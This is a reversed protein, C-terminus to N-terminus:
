FDVFCWRRSGWCFSFFLCLINCCGTGCWYWNFCILGDLLIMCFLNILRCIAICIFLVLFLRNWARRNNGIIFLNLSEFILFCLLVWFIFDRGRRLRNFIKLFNILLGLSLLWRRGRRFFIYRFRIFFAIFFSFSYLGNGLIIGQILRRDNSLFLLCFFGRRQRNLVGLLIFNRLFFGICFNFLNM